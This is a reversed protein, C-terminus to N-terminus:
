AASSSAPRTLAASTCRHLLAARQQAQWLFHRVISDFSPDVRANAWTRVNFTTCLCRQGRFGLPDQAGSHIRKGAENSPDTQVKLGDIVLSPSKFKIVNEPSFSLDFSYNFTNPTNDAIVDIFDTILSAIPKIGFNNKEIKRQMSDVRKSYDLLYGEANLEVFFSALSRAWHVSNPIHRDHYLINKVAGHYTLELNQSESEPITECFRDEYDYGYENPIKKYFVPLSNPFKEEGIDYIGHHYFFDNGRYTNNLIDINILNKIQINHSLLNKVGFPNKLKTYYDIVESISSKGANNKGILVTLPQLGLTHGNKFSKFNKFKILM